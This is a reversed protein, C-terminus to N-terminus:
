FVKTIISYWVFDTNDVFIALNDLQNKYFQKAVFQLKSIFWVPFWNIYFYFHRLSLDRDSRWM